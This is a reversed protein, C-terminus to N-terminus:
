THPTSQHIGQNDTHNSVPRPAVYPAYYTNDYRSRYTRAILIILLILILLLLWGLLGLGWFNLFGAAAGLNTNNFGNEHNLVYAIANEQASSPATYVLLATSVINSNNNPLSNVRGQVYVVGEGQPLLDELPVSLTMTEPAYTGRSANVFTVYQPLIVQLLPKVLKTNGINKYTVTYDVTDGINFLEYKNEIKLMIPSEMGIRTVGTNVYVTRTTTTNTITSPTRFIEMTGRVTSGNNEGVARYYYLTGASLNSVYDSFPISTGANLYKRATTLGFNPTTGYEFYVNSSTSGTNMLLGNISASTQQVNTAVTTIVSIQNSNDIWSSNTTFSQTSGYITGYSNQAVTQYYYTTNPNLNSVYESVSRSGSGNNVSSTTMNMYGTSTGYRFWRTTYTGNGDVRGNLTASYQDVGTAAYTSVSPSSGNNSNGDSDTDFSMQNGRVIVGTSVNQAVACYTYTSDPNLSYINSTLSSSNVNYVNGYQAGYCPFELWGNILSGNGNIYGSLTARNTGISTPYNTTASPASSNNSNVSVYVSSSPGNTTLVYNTGVTPYVVTSNGYVPNGNLYLQGCTGTTSWYITVPTGATVSNNPSATLSNIVCNNTNNNVNVVASRPSPATGTGTATLTYTTTSSPYVSTSGNVNQSGIGSIYVNTCNSTNWSLTAASGSSISQTAPTFSDITCNQAATTGVVFSVVVSGQSAWGSAITGIDVGGNLIESGSQGNPFAVVASSQNPQWIAGAFTLTQSSSINATVTGSSKSGQSGTIFSDFSFSTSAGSSPSKSLSIKTNNMSSGSTNHYYIAVSVTDGSSVNVPATSWSSCGTFGGATSTSRIRIQACDLPDGNWADLAFSVQGVFLMALGLIIAIKKM